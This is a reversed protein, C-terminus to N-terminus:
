LKKLNTELIDLFLAAHTPKFILMPRLRISKDGCAGMEVGSDRMLNVLKDRVQPNESDFALFTGVGRPQLLKGPYKAELKNLNEHLYQGTIATNEVLKNKEIEALTVSLQLARLPDGMWTNFNRYAESPRLEFNHYFGAAQMKKSFTVVDPPTTLNWHEHAWFKGTAGVGTQVEDVIFAVGADKTIKRLQQFFYPSAYNDGGEAQIPEVILGAVPIHWTKILKAAEELCRDEEKRNAEQHKELPYQLNPFPAVPWDFAPVDVKHLAKSRTTTLSGFLRGHFAKQFSLISLKPTGPEQNKMCSQLDEASFQKGGRKVLQHHMFVAKYACENACTGCMATFIQSLGPPKVKLFSSELTEPWHLPPLVGLAPRNIIATTWADSKAAETLAPNNYGIPISAIQCYVDLFINGDADVIYNGRSKSYDAFFHIARPDQYNNLRAALEKTKPGPVATTVKPGLYENPFAPAPTSPLSAASFQAKQTKLPSKTLSRAFSVTQM